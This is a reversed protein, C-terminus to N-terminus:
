KTTSTQKNINHLWAFRPDIVVGMADAVMYFSDYKETLAVAEHLKETEHLANYLDRSIDWDAAHLGTKRCIKTVLQTLHLEIAEKNHEKCDIETKTKYKV